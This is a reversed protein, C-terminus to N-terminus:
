AEYRQCSKCQKYPCVIERDHDIAWVISQAEDFIHDTWKPSYTVVFERIQQDAKHEYVIVARDVPGVAPAHHVMLRLYIQVQRFHDALPYSIKSFRTSSLEDEDDESMLNLERMTGPGVSKIELLLTEDQATVVGDAHGGIRLSPDQVPVERYEWVHRGHDNRAPCRSPLENSWCLIQGECVLCVWRGWLVGMDRLWKQWKDHIAHGEDFLVARRLVLPDPTAEHGLLQHWSARPCWGARAMESPHLLSHDRDSPLLQIHRDVDGILVSEHKKADLYTKLAPDSVARRRRPVPKSAM